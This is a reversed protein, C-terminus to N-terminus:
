LNDETWEEKKDDWVKGYKEYMVYALWLQEMSGDNYGYEDSFISLGVLIGANQHGHGFNIVMEQLQDQRFLPIMDAKIRTKNQGFPILEALEILAVDLIKVGDRQSYIFDGPMPEWTKRLPAKECMKIYKPTTDM